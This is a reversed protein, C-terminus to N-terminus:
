DISLVPNLGTLRRAVPRAPQKRHQPAAAARAAHTVSFGSGAFAVVANLWPWPLPVSQVPFWPFKFAAPGVALPVGGRWGGVRRDSRAPPDRGLTSPTNVTWM